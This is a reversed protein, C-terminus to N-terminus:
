QAISISNPLNNVIKEVVLEEDEGIAVFDIGELWKRYNIDLGLNTNQGFDIATALPLGMLLSNVENPIFYELTDSNNAQTVLRIRALAYGLNEQWMSDSQISLPHGTSLSTPDVDSLSDDLGLRFLIRDYAGATQYAGMTFSRGNAVDILTFDDVLSRKEGAENAVEVVDSIVLNSDTGILLMESMFFTIGVMRVSDPSGIDFFVSDYRLNEEGVLHNVVLQLTPFNCCDDECANDANANFNSAYLNLCGDVKEYCSSLTFISLFVGLGILRRLSARNRKM